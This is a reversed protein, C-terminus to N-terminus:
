LVMENFGMRLGIINKEIIEEPWRNRFKERCAKEVAPIEILPVLKLWAGLLALSPLDKELFYLAIESANFPLLSGGFKVTKSLERLSKRTNVLLLGSSKLESPITQDKILSPDCVLASDFIKPRQRSYIPALSLRLFIDEAGIRYSELSPAAQIFYGETLAAEALLQM